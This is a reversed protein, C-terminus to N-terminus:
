LEDSPLSVSTWRSSLVGRDKSSPRGWRIGDYNITVANGLVSLNNVSSYTIVLPIKAIKVNLSGQDIFSAIAHDIPLDVFFKEVGGHYDWRIKLRTNRSQRVLWPTGWEPPHLTTWHPRKDKTKEYSDGELKVDGFCNQLYFLEGERILPM